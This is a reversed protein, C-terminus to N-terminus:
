VALHRCRHAQFSDRICMKVAIQVAFYMVTVVVSALMAAAAVSPSGAGTKNEEILQSLKTQTKIRQSEIATNKQQLMEKFNEATKKAVLAALGQRKYM